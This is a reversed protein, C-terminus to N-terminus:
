YATYNGEGKSFILMYGNQTYEIDLMIIKGKDASEKALQTSGPVVDPNYAATVGFDENDILYRVYKTLDDTPNKVNSYTISLREDISRDSM